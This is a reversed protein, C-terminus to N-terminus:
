QRARLRKQLWSLPATPAFGAVWALEAVAQGYQHDDVCDKIRRAAAVAAFRGNASLSVNHDAVLDRHGAEKAAWRHVRVIRDISRCLERHARTGNEDHSRYDVLTKDVYIFSGRLAAKLVLDLDEALRYSPQFGGIEAFSRRRIMVNGLMIGTRRRLVDHVDRVQVQDAPNVEVGDANVARMGCYSLVADPNEDLSSVQRALREPHWCDDDDLFVLLGGSSQQVGNNRAVACGANEQRILQVGPFLDLVNRLGGPDSSGDDVVIVERRGYTQEALSRLTQEFFAGGGTRNTAIIVSVLSEDWM